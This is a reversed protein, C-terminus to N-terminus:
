ASTFERWRDTMYSANDPWIQFFGVKDIRDEITGSDRVGGEDSPEGEEDAWDYSQPDFLAPEDVPDYTAQGEYAWDYYEPGMGEGTDDSGNRVLDTNPYHPVSYGYGQIFRPFNAGYHIDILKAIEAYNSRSGGAGAKTPSIGGYWYRYGQLGKQGTSMTSYTIPTGSRRTDLAAPQWLDGIVAEESAMLNVSQGYATWTSRFQGSTKQDILFDIAADLQEETPNNLDGVKGDVMGQDVLHMLAEPITISATAGLAVRGEYQDDFVDSWLNAEDVYEPNYGVADFNYVHPPFKLETQEEDQWLIENITETQTGLHELRDAPSSFLDSITDSEWSVDDTPVPIHVSNDNVLAGAGSTEASFADFSSAEGGLVRQQVTPVAATTTEIDIGTVEKYLEAQGDRAAWAPGIWTLPRSGEDMSDSRAEELNQDDSGGSCGALATSAGAM